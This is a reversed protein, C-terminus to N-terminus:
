LVRWGKIHIVVIEDSDAMRAHHGELVRPDLVPLCICTSAPKLNQSDLDNIENVHNVSANTRTRQLLCTVRRM